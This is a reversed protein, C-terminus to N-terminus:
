LFFSLRFRTLDSADRTSNPSFSVMAMSAPSPSAAKPDPKHTLFIAGIIQHKDSSLFASTLSIEFDFSSSVFRVFLFLSM